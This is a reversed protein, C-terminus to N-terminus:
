LTMGLLPLPLRKEWSEGEDDSEEGARLQDEVTQDAPLDRLESVQESDQVGSHRGTLRSLPVWDTEM